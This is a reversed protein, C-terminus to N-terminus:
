ESKNAVALRRENELADSEGSSIWGNTLVSTTLRTCTTRRHRHRIRLRACETDVIIKAECLASTREVDVLKTSKHCLRDTPTRLIDVCKHLAGLAAEVPNEKDGHMAAKLLSPPSPSFFTLFSRVSSISASAGVCYPAPSGLTTGAAFRSPPVCSRQTPDQSTGSWERRREGAGM